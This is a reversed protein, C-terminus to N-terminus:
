ENGVEIKKEWYMKKDGGLWKINGRLESIWIFSIAASMEVSGIEIYLSIFPGIYRLSPFYWLLGCRQSIYAITPVSQEQKLNGSLVHSIYESYVVCLGFGHIIGTVSFPVFPNMSIFWKPSKKEKKQFVELTRVIFYKQMNDKGNEEFSRGNVTFELNSVYFEHTFFIKEYFYKQNYKCKTEM